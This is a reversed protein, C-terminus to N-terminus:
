SACYTLLQAPLGASATGCVDDSKEAQWAKGEWQLFFVTNGPDVRAAAWDQGGSSACDFKEMDAGGPLAALLAKSTCTAAAPAVTPSPTPASDTCYSLLEAPVGASATGCVDDSEEAQWAKGEWKLFFVTNGPDVRAAAWEQGGSSACDFRQMEAGGPLQALLAESTCSATVVAPTVAGTTPAPSTTDSSSSGSCASLGVLAVVSVAALLACRKISIM